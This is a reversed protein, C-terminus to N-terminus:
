SSLPSLYYHRISSFACQHIIVKFELEIHLELAWLRTNNFVAHLPGLAIRPWNSLPGFTGTCNATYLALSLTSSPSWFSSLTLGIFTKHTSQFARLRQSLHLRLLTIIRPMSTPNKYM